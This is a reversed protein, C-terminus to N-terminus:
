GHKSGVGLFFIVAPVIALIAWIFYDMPVCGGKALADSLCYNGMLPLLVIATGVTLTAAVNGRFRMAFAASAALLVIPPLAFLVLAPILRLALAGDFRYAVGSLAVVLALLNATLTFRMHAFRNLAAAALLPLVIAAVGLAFSPGWLRALDGCGAAVRGGIEAGNVITLTVSMVTLAFALYAIFVGLTKALFFHTRSVSLALASEMTGSEIERRITKHAAFAAHFLGGLLLASFGADRAMRSAEGFQHYHIAPAFIALALSSLLILLGLPEGFVEIATAYALARVRRV